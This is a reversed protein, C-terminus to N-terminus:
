KSGFHLRMLCVWLRTKHLVHWSQFCLTLMSLFLAHTYQLWKYITTEIPHNWIKVHSFSTEGFMWEFRTTQLELYIDTCMWSGMLEFSRDIGPTAFHDERWEVVIFSWSNHGKAAYTQSLAPPTTHSYQSYTTYIGHWYHPQSCDQIGFDISFLLHYPPLIIYREIM